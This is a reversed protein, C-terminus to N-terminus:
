TDFYVVLSPTSIGPRESCASPPPLINIDNECSSGSEHALVSIDHHISKRRTRASLPPLRPVRTTCCSAAREPNFTKKRLVLSRGNYCIRSPVGENTCERNTEHRTAQRLDTRAPLGTHVLPTIGPIHKVRPRDGKSASSASHM